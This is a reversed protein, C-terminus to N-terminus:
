SASQSVPQAIQRRTDVSKSRDVVVSLQSDKQERLPRPNAEM